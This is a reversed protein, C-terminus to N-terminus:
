PEKELLLVCCLLAQSFLIKKMNINEWHFRSKRLDIRWPMWLKNSKSESKDFEESFYLMSCRIRWFFVVNFTLFRLFEISAALNSSMVLEVFNQFASQFGRTWGLKSAKWWILWFCLLFSVFVGDNNNFKIRIHQFKWFWFSLCGILIKM